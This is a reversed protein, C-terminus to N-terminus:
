PISVIRPEGELVSSVHSDGNNFCADEFMDEFSTGTECTQIFEFDANEEMLEAKVRPEVYIKTVNQERLWRCILSSMSVVSGGVYFCEFHVVRSTSSVMQM